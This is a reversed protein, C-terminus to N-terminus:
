CEINLIQGMLTYGFNPIAMLLMCFESNFKEIDELYDAGYEQMLWQMVNDPGM